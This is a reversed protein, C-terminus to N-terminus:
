DTLRPLYDAYYHLQQCAIEPLAVIRWAREESVVKDAILMWGQEIDFYKQSQIPDHIPRHGTCCFLLALCYDTYANHRVAINKQQMTLQVQEATKKILERITERSPYYGSLTM